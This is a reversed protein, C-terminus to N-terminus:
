VSGYDEYNLMIRKSNILMNSECFKNLNSNLKISEKKIKDQIHKLRENTTKDFAINYYSSLVKYKSNYKNLRQKDLCIYIINNLMLWFDKFAYIYNDSINSCIICYLFVLLSIFLMFAIILAIFSIIILFCFKILSYNCYKTFSLKIDKNKDFLLYLSFDIKETKLCNFKLHLKNNNKLTNSNSLFIFNKDDDSNLLKNNISDSILSYDVNFIPKIIGGNSLSGNLNIELNNSLIEINPTYLTININSLNYIYLSLVNTKDDINHIFNNM